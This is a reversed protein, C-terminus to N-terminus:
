LTIELLPLVRGAIAESAVEGVQVAGYRTYFRVAQPDSEIQIRVAGAGRATELAWRMLAGGAGLGMADPDVFLKDLHATAAEIGIAAVGVPMGSAEAVQWTMRALDAERITLVPVCAVMFAADYGWHAKSRLCLASLAACEATEPARLSILSITGGGPRSGPVEQDV